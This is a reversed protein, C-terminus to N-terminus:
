NRASASQSNEARMRADVQEYTRRSAEQIFEIGNQVNDSRTMVCLLYARKPYYVIGCDHFQKETENEFDRIGFKHAVVIGPPVGAVLAHTYASRSLMDLAKQSMDPKLYRGNYLVRFLASYSKVTLIHDVAASYMGLEKYVLSLLSGREDLVQLLNKLMDASANDSYVVMKELLQEVTYPTGPQLTEADPHEVNSIGLYAGSMIIEQKLLQPDEQSARLIAILLPVKFLSAPTFEADENVGFWPGGQLDRFYIAGEKIKGSAKEANIWEELHLEFEEYEPMFIGTANPNCQVLPNLLSYRTCTGVGWEQWEHYGWVGLSVGVVLALVTGLKTARLLHQYPLNGEM